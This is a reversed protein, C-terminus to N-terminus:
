IDAPCRTPKRRETPCLCPLEAGAGPESERHFTELSSRPARGPPRPLSLSTRSPKRSFGSGLQARHHSTLPPLLSPAGSRPAAPCVSPACREPASAPTVPASLRPGAHGRRAEPARECPKPGWLVVRALHREEGPKRGQAGRAERRSRLELLTQEDADKEWGRQLRRGAQAAGRGNRTEPRVLRARPLARAGVFGVPSGAAGM